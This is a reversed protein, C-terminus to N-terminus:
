LYEYTREFLFDTYQKNFANVAEIYIEDGLHCEDCINKAITRLNTDVLRDFLSFFFINRKKCEKRLNETFIMTAVNRDLENGHRPYGPNEKWADKQSAIPGYVIFNVQQSYMEIFELYNAIADNIRGIYNSYGPKFIHVRIDIEGFSTM